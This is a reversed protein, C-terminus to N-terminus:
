EHEDGGRKGLQPLKRTTLRNSERVVTFFTWAVLVSILAAVAYFLVDAAPNLLLLVLGLAFGISPLWVPSMRKQEEEPPASSTYKLGKDDLGRERDRIRRTDRAAVLIGVAALAMSIAVAVFPTFTFLLNLILFLPLALLLSTWLYKRFDIPLDAAIKGTQGNVVAYSVRSGDRSRTALFWVPFFALTPKQDSVKRKKMAEGKSLGYAPLSIKKAVEGTVLRNATDMAESQYVKSDVDNRDAYFGSLYAPSFPQRASHDFPAIAESLHDSFAGSADYYIDSVMGQCQANLEYSDKIIYDGSRHEQKGEMSFDWSRFRYNWYPMYIGRFQSIQQDEKMEKPIYGARRLLKRYANECDEKSIQFPIVFEPKMQEIIRSELMVSAGCYSCFTAATEDETLLEGGCQPCTFVNVAFSDDQEKASLPKKENYEKTTFESDCYDCVLKQKEPSFRLDAGCGPCILM